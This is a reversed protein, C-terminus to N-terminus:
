RSTSEISLRPEEVSVSRWGLYVDSKAATAAIDTTLVLRAQGHVLTIRPVRVTVARGAPIERRALVQGTGQERVTLRRSRGNSTSKFTMTVRCSRCHQVSVAYIAQAGPSDPFLIWRYERGAPGIIASLGDLGDVRARAPRAADQWVQGDRASFRLIYGRSRLDAADSGPQGSHVVIYKVHLAALKPATTTERLSALGRKMSETESGAAYGQFSPHGDQEAYVLPRYYPDEAALLPYDAVIGGPHQALWVYEAPLSTTTARPAPPRAWLDVVLVVGLAAVVALRRTPSCRRLLAAVAYALLICLGLEILEVLRSYVRWTSTLAFVFGSPMAVRVGFVHTIPPLSFAAAAAALCAASVAATVRIDGAAHAGESRIRRAALVAGALALIIVSVGLYLSSEQFNSGHLHSSLYPHTLGGFLFNNSDPLLWEPLRASFAVLQQLNQTRVAGAQSGGALVTLAGLAGMLAIIPLASLVVAKVAVRGMGRAHAMVVTVVGLVGYALGAFFIFYPTFWMSGAVACGALLANRRTPSHALEIMRWVGLVLVWGDMYEIHGGIQNVAFPYFAFAFGALGAALQSGFLRRSLLFMSLGSLVFSLWLFVNTGLVPGLLLALGYILGRDPASVWNLVWPVALGQPANIGSMTGPAFPFIGHQIWYAFQSTGGALDASVQSGSLSHAAVTALPWTLFLAYALYLTGAILIGRRSPTM